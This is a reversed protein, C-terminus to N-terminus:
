FTKEDERDSKQLVRISNQRSITTVLGGSSGGSGSSSSGVIVIVLAIHAPCHGGIGDEAQGRGPVVLSQNVDPDAVTPPPPLLFLEICFCSYFISYKRQSTFHVFYCVSCVCEHVCVCGFACEGWVCVCVCACASTFFRSRFPAPPQTLTLSLFFSLPISSFLTFRPQLVRGVSAREREGERQKEERGERVERGGEEVHCVHACKSQCFIPLPIQKALVIEFSIDTPCFYCNALEVFVSWNTLERM